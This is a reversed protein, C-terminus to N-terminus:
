PIVQGLEPNWGGGGGGGGPNPPSYNPDSQVPTGNITVSYSNQSLATPAPSLAFVTTTGDGNLTWTEAPAGVGGVVENPMTKRVIATATRANTVATIEAIGYGSHMYEWEVGTRYNITDFTKLDGPGDWATGNEHTPRVNGTETYNPSAGASPVTIARYYKGDSRRVVGVALEGGGSTREGQVWPKVRGLSQPELYVLMGVMDATFLDFNTTLTVTGTRASAAMVNAENANINRFPGERPVFQSLAFSTAGTRRLLRPAHDPHVLFMTDASQTHRVAPLEAETWPTAVEVPVGGSQLIAGAYHFRAYLHGLEVVYALDDSVAFPLLRVQRASDKVEHVLRTGPRTTIGGYPRVIWNQLSRVGIGYRDLDQRGWLSPDLEGAGFSPQLLPEAM